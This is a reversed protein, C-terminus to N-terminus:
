SKKLSYCDEGIHIYYRIFIFSASFTLVFKGSGNENLITDDAGKSLYYEALKYFGYAYAYHLVSAGKLNTANIDM